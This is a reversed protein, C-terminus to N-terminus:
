YYDPRDPRLQSPYWDPYYFQGDMMPLRKEGRIVNNRHERRLNDLHREREAWGKSTWTPYTQRVPIGPGRHRQPRGIIRRGTSATRGPPSWQRPAPARYLGPLRSMLNWYSQSSSRGVFMDWAQRRADMQEELTREYIKTRREEQRMTFARMEAEAAAAATLSATLGGGMEGKGGLHESARAMSRRFLSNTHDSLSGSGSGRGVMGWSEATSRPVNITGGGAGPARDGGYILSRSLGMSFPQSLKTAM